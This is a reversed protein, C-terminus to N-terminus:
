KLAGYLTALFTGVQLLFTWDAKALDCKLTLKFSITLDFRKSGIKMSGGGKDSTGVEDITKRHIPNYCSFM